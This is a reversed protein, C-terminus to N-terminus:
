RSPKLLPWRSEDTVTGLSSVDISDQTTRAWEISQQRFFCRSRTTLPTGVVAGTKRTERHDCRDSTVVLSLSCSSSFSATSERHIIVKTNSTTTPPLNSFAFTLTLIQKIVFSKAYSPYLFFSSCRMLPHRRPAPLPLLSALADQGDVCCHCVRSRTRYSAPPSAPLRGPQCLASHGESEARGEHERLGGVAWCGPPPIDTQAPRYSAVCTRLLVRFKSGEDM